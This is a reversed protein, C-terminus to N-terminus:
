RVAWHSTKIKLVLFYKEGGCAERLGWIFILSLINSTDAKSKHASPHESPVLETQNFSIYWDSFIHHFM